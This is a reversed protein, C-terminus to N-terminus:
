ENEERWGLVGSADDAFVLAIKHTTKGSVSYREAYGKKEIQALLM